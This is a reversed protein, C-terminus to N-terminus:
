RFWKWFLATGLVGISFIALVAVELAYDPYISVTAVGAMLPICLWAIRLDITVAMVGAALSALLLEQAFVQPVSLGLWPGYARNLVISWATIAASFWVRRNAVTHLLQRRAVALILSYIIAAGLGISFNITHTMEVFGLRVIALLSTALFTGFAAFAAIYAIRWGSDVSMDLGEALKNLASQKRRLQDIEIRLAVTDLDTGTAILEDLLESARDPDGAVVEWQVQLELCDRLLAKAAGNENWHSLADDITFRAGSGIERVFEPKADPDEVLRALREVRARALQELLRSSQHHGYDDLAQRFALANPQRRAPDRHTARNCIAALENPVDAPYEYAESRYVSTLIEKATKGRHRTQGVLLRHLASGLLYVDTCITPASGGLMEPAMYGPTGMLLPTAEEDFRAAIGWDLLAVEGFEGIMVNEPKIDRHIIKRSHAYHVANCVDILIAINRTLTASSLRTAPDAEKLLKSWRRGEIRKMVLLPRGGDDRGLAHVPVVNPHELSGTITAERILARVQSGDAKHLRKIAVSRDLSAQMAEYVEGMGGKGLLGRLRLDADPNGDIESVRILPLRAAIEEGTLADTAGPEDRYDNPTITVEGALKTQVGARILTEWVESFGGSQEGAV